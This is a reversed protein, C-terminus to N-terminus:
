EGLVQACIELMMKLGNIAGKEEPMFKSSHNPNKTEPREPNYMGLSFFAGPCKEEFYAFDEAGMMPEAEECTIGLEEAAARVIAVQEESNYMAPYGYVKEVQCKCGRMECIARAVREVEDLVFDRDQTRSARITGSMTGDKPIVNPFERSGTGIHSVSLTTPDTPNIRSPVIRQLHVAIDVLAAVPDVATHPSGTHGGTGEVKLQYTGVAMSAMGTRTSITGVETQGVHLAFVMDVGKTAGDAVMQRAGGPLQEEAAQYALLIKGKSWLDRNQSLAEALCLLNATHFDHGCAHMVGPVKSCHAWENEEQVPLADMDARILITPGPVGSDLEALVSNGTIGSRMPIGLETLKDRIFQSTKEEHFSLEPNEHFHRRYALLKEELPRAIAEVKAKSM